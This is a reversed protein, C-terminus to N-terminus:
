RIRICKRSLGNTPSDNFHTGFWNGWRCHNVDNGKIKVKRQQRQKKPEEIPNPLNENFDNMKNDEKLYMYLEWRSLVM